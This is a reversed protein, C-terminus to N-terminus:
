HHPLVLRDQCGQLGQGDCPDKPAFPISLFMDIGMRSAARGADMVTVSQRVLRHPPCTNVQDQSDQCCLWLASLSLSSKGPRTQAESFIGQFVHPWPLSYMNGVTGSDLLLTPLPLM